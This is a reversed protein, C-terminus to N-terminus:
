CHYFDHLQSYLLREGGNPLPSRFIRELEAGLEAAKRPLREIQRERTEHDAAPAGDPFLANIDRIVQAARAAGIKELAEAMRPTYQVSPNYYVSFAGGNYVKDKQWRMAQAAAV